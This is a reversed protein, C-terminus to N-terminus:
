EHACDACTIARKDGCFEEQCAHCICFYDGPAWGGKPPRSDDKPQLCIEATGLRVM